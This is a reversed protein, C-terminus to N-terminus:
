TAYSQYASKTQEFVAELKSLKHSVQSLEAQGGSLMQRAQEEISRAIDSLRLAGMQRASSKLTHSPSVIKEINATAVAKRIAEIYTEADEFFYEVMKPFKAHMTEKAEAITSPDIIPEETM